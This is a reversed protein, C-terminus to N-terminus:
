SHPRACYLRLFWPGSNYRSWPVRVRRSPEDEHQGDERVAYSWHTTSRPRAQFATVRNPRDFALSVVGTAAEPHSSSSRAGAILLRRGRVTVYPPQRNVQKSTRGRGPLASPCSKPIGMNFPAPMGLSFNIKSSIRAMLLKDPPASTMNTM